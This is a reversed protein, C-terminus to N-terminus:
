VTLGPQGLGAQGAAGSGAQGSLGLGAQGGLTFAAQGTGSQGTVNLGPPQSALTLATQGNVAVPQGKAGLGGQALANSGGSSGARIQALADTEAGQVVANLLNSLEMLRELSL